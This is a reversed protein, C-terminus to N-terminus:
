RYAIITDKKLRNLRKELLKVRSLLEKEQTKTEIMTNSSQVISPQVLDFVM